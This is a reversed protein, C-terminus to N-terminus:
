FKSLLYIRTEHGNFSKKTLLKDSNYTYQTENWGDQRHRYLLGDANYELNYSQHEWSGSQLNGNFWTREWRQNEYPRPFHNTAYNSSTQQGADDFNRFITRTGDLIQNDVYKFHEFPIGIMNRNTFSPKLTHQVTADWYDVTYFFRSEHEKGDSNTTKIKYPSLIKNQPHYEYNTTSTVGDM